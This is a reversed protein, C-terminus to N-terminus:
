EKNIGKILKKEFSIAIGYFSDYFRDEAKLYRLYRKTPKGKYHTRKIESEMRELDPLSVFKGFQKYIGSANCSDYSLNACHRCGFYNGTQYLVRVRRGCYQNNKYLGCIFFWKKGGYRCPLSEMKLSYDIDTWLEEGHKRIKYTLKINPNDSYTDVRIDINGTPNGNRSWTMKGGYLGVLYNNKKLWSLEIRKAGEVTDRAGSYYYRAM